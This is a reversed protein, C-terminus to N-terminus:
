HLTHCILIPYRPEKRRMRTNFQDRLGKIEEESADEGSIVSKVWESGIRTNKAQVGESPIGLNLAEVGLITPTLPPDGDIRGLKADTKSGQEHILDSPHPPPDHNGSSPQSNFGM